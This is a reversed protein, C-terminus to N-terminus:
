DSAAPPSFFSIYILMVAGLTIWIDAINFVYWYYGFAHPSIFDIVAGHVIRDILNGIAGAIILVFGARGIASKENWFLWGMFGTIAVGMAILLLTSVTSNASFLGYSIGSNWVLTLDLFPLIAIGTAPRDPQDLFFALVMYKSIQDLLLGAVGLAWLRRSPKGAMM